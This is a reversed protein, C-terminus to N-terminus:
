FMSLQPAATKATHTPVESVLRRVTRTHIGLARAVQGDNSGDWHARIYRVMYQRTFRMPLEIRTGAMRKWLDAAIRAGASEAITRLGSDPFDEVTLEDWASPLSM